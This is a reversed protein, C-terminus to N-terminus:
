CVSVLEKAHDVTDLCRRRVMGVRIQIVVGEGCRVNEAYRKVAAQMRLAAYCARVGHDEHALPAGFLAIIGAGMVQTM